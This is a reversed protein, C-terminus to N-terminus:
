HLVPGQCCYPAELPDVQAQRGLQQLGQRGILIDVDLGVDGAGAAIHLHQRGRLDLDEIRQDFVIRWRDLGIARASGDHDRSGGM